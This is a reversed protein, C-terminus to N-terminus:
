TYRQLIEKAWAIADEIRCGTPQPKCWLELNEIRNDDKVGNKHHVSEGKYLPRGLHQCMVAAHESLRHVGPYMESVKPYHYKISVWVYGDHDQGRGGSWRYNKPGIKGTNPSAKGSRRKVETAYCGCSKKIGRRLSSGQATTTNGCDCRCKWIAGSKSTHDFSIAVLRGFRQGTIDILRQPM